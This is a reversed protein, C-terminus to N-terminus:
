SWSAILSLTFPVAWLRPGRPEQFPDVKSVPFVPSIISVRPCRFAFPTVGFLAVGPIPIFALSDEILAKANHLRTLHGLINKTKEAPLFEASLDDFTKYKLSDVEITEDLSDITYQVGKELDIIICLPDDGYKDDKQGEVKLKFKGYSINMLFRQSDM